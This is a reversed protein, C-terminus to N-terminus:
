DTGRIFLRTKILEELLSILMVNFLVFAVSDEDDNTLDKKIYSDQIAKLLFM